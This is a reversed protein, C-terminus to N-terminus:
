LRASPDIRGSDGRAVICAAEVGAILSLHQLLLKAAESLAEEPEIAGDTWIELVLRDFDTQQGIRAREVHFSAKRVPNFIADM